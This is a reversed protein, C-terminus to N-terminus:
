TEIKVIRYMWVLGLIQLALGSLLAMKGPFSHLLELMYARNVVFIFTGLVLPLAGLIYASLRGEATLTRIERRLRLREVMTAALTDFLSALNGGAEQQIRVAAVSETFDRNGIRAAADELADEVPRGLRAESLVRQLEGASPERLQRTVAELGQLLSFGARLSSATLKLVNPLQSEFARARHDAAGQLAALPAFVLIVLVVVAGILGALAWGLALFATGALLWVTLLEGLRARVGARGMIAALRESLGARSALLELSASLRKLVPITLLSLTGGPFPAVARPAFRYPELLSALDARSRRSSRWALLRQRRPVEAEGRLSSPATQSSTGGRRAGGPSRGKTAAVAATRRRRVVLLSVMLALAVMLLTAGLPTRLQELHLAVAHWDETAPRTM